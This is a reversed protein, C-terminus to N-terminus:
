NLLDDDDPQNVLFHKYTKDIEKETSSTSMIKVVPVATLTEHLDQYAKVLHSIVNTQSSLLLKLQAIETQRADNIKELKRIRSLFFINEFVRKIFKLM